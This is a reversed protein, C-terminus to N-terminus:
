HRIINIDLSGYLSVVPKNSPFAPSKHGYLYPNPVTTPAYMQAAHFITDYPKGAHVDLPEVWGQALSRAPLGHLTADVGNRAILQLVCVRVCLLSAIRFNYLPVPRCATCRRM